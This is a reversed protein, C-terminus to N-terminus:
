ATRARESADVRALFARIFPMTLLAKENWKADSAEVAALTEASYQDAFAVWEANPLLARLAEAAERPHVADFGHAILAPATIQRIEEDSLWGVEARPLMDADGWRNMVAAFVQPDLARLYERNRASDRCTEAVWTAAWDFSDPASAGSIMRTWIKLSHAIVADMGQEAAVRAPEYYHAEEFPKLLDPDGTPPDFLLLGRVDQPYRHAMLLSFVCGNSGGGLYAPAMNLAHLLAHLDDAWLHLESPADEIRVDSAGCNRRDWLIVAHQDSLCGANVYVWPERPFWAGPTLVVPTGSGIIEYAITVGNVSLRPMAGGKRVAIIAGIFEDERV